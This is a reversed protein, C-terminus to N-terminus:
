RGQRYPAPPPTPLYEVSPVARVPQPYLAMMDLVEQPMDISIKLGLGQAEVATIPYDHTWIGSSLREALSKAQDPTMHKSLLDAAATCVQDTAKRAVDALIVTRDDIEAIPKDRLVKALSAAPYEGIQPDIPGLMAHSAMVIEDAALAILTGGSMAMHPVFVTVKSPHERLARAIQLSALVLGGPTHMILDLPTGRDTSRVARIIAESDDIDIYRMVPFGLLRMTEQRHVLAIVRSGRREQLRAIARRRMYVLMRQRIMPQLATVIFFLWFLNGIDM